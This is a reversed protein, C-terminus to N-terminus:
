YERAMVCRVNAAADQIGSEIVVYTHYEKTMRSSGSLPHCTPRYFQGLPM